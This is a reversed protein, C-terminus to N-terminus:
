RHLALHRARSAARRKIEDANARSSQAERTSKWQELSRMGVTADPYAPYTVPSVDYLRGFKTITRVIVGDENEDWTDGNPAVSFAFSSQSVDGRTIAERLDRACNTDPLDIEYQLGTDDVSIRCTGSLTRGLVFNPDHNFLARVDDALVGDFAGPAIQERFGFMPVSLTNFKAAYGRVTQTARDASAKRLEIKGTDLFRREIENM